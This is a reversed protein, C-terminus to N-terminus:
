ICPRIDVVDGDTQNYDTIHDDGEGAKFTDAGAGGTLHDNGAGGDLMDNGAGGSIFDDGNGGFLLDSSSSGSIIEHSSTGTINGDADFTVDFTPITHNNDGDADFVMVGAGNYYSITTNAGSDSTFSTVDFVRFSDGDGAELVIADFTYPQNTVPDLGGEIIFTSHSSASGPATGENVLNWLSPDLKFEEATYGNTDYVKWVAEEGVGMSNATIEAATMAHPDSSSTDSFVMFLQESNEGAKHDLWNNDVGMGPTSSNVDAPDGNNDYGTIRIQLNGDEGGYFLVEDGIGPDIGGTNLDFVVGAAGDLPGLITVTYTEAVSDVAVSFIQTSTGNKVAILGGNGDSEYVLREGDSTLFNGHNDVVYGFLTPGNLQIPTTAHPGDAGFDIELPVTLSNGPENALIADYNAVISPSDDEVNVTLIGTSIDTGDSVNVPVNFSIVDEATTDPHDIPGDLDVTYQGSDNITITIVPDGGVGATGVLTKGTGPDVQWDIVQGNSSLTM